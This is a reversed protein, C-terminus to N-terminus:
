TRKYFYAGFWVRLCLKGVCLSKLNSRALWETTQAFGRKYMNKRGETM